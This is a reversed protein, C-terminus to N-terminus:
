SQEGRVRAILRAAERFAEHLAKEDARGRFTRDGPVILVPVDHLYRAELDEHGTIDIVRLPVRMRTAMRGASRKMSFCLPCHPRTYLIAGVEPDGERTM